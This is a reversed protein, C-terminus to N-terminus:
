VRERCSARGIEKKGFINKLRVGGKVDVDFVINQGQSTLKEIESHLTGYHQDQYVGEWEVFKDESIYQRFQEPSLFYYHMGNTEHARPTRSTASVSFSCKLAPDNLIEAAITTKGSGSPASLIIIKSDM